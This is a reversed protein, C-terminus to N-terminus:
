VRMPMVIYKYDYAAEEAVPSLQAQGNGDKFDFAVRGERMVGFFDQLYQSNFGIVVDEGTYDTPVEEVAEGEEATNAGIQILGNKFELRVARTRDDAM